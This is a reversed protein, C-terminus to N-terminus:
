WSISGSPKSATPTPATTANAGPVYHTSAVYAEVDELTFKLKRGVHYSALKGSKALQYVTNKGLHLYRAVDEANMFDDSHM